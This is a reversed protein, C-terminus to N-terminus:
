EAREIVEVIMTRNPKAIGKVVHLEEPKGPGYGKAQRLAREHRTGKKVFGLMPLGSDSGEPGGIYFSQYEAEKAEELPYKNDLSKISGKFWVRKGALKDWADRNKAVDWTTEEYEHAEEKRVIGEFKVPLDSARAGAKCKENKPFLTVALKYDYKPMLGTPAKGGTALLPQGLLGRLQNWDDMQVKGPVYATRGLYVDFFKQDVPLAPTLLENGEAKKLGLQGLQKWNASDIVINNKMSQVHSWLNHAFVNNTLVLEAPDSAIQIADNDAFEFINNDVVARAEGELRLLHGNRGKGEGFRIEWSFLLTNNRVLAPTTTHGGTLRITQSYHNIFINNEITQGNAVRIAGAVGNLFTCNRIVCGPRDLRVHESKDSNNYDIDGDPKWQNNSRKDFVFGDIVAGTHDGIGLADIMPGGRGGKFDEACYLLTPRTWPNREKFEADYGGILSIYSTDIKWLGAKLKGHYTGEAVHITDGM